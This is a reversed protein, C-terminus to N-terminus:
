EFCLKRPMAPLNENQKAESEVSKEKFPSEASAAARFSLPITRDKSITQPVDNLAKTKSPPTHHSLSIEKEIGM